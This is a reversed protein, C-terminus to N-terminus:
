GLPARPPKAALTHLARYAPELAQYVGGFIQRQARYLEAAAPDAQRWEEVPVLDGAVELSAVLGLAQMGLLAAGFASGQSANAFGVDRGLVDTLLQRTFPDRLFGGTARIEHVERGAAEVAELVLALQQCVGELAARVLHPRGHARTLGFYAGRVLANWHPARESLLYPLMLLGDSGAPAGAALQLLTAAAHEGLDPTVANAVWDLVSGGNSISGGIAWREDDLAYCFTRGLPDVGPQDVIVRMAGSTGVSCAAVGSRVAGVGLNALPGDGAGIVLPADGLQLERALDPAFALRHTTSVVPPLQEARVGCLELAPAWWAATGMELLGTGSAISRDMLYQNTLRAVVYEKIGLWRVAEEVVAPHEDRLWLLKVVPAMPHVPTGTRRYLEKGVETDRLREAQDVARSDAWTILPTIPAGAGDLGLLSHMAASFAVGAIRSGQRLCSSVVHGLGTLVAELVLDPNQTAQGAETTDLPYGHEAQEHRRGHVDYAVVKTSTTGIDVGILVTGVEDLPPQSM